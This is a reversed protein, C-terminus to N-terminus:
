KTNIKITGVKHLLIFSQSCRIKSEKNDIRRPISHVQLTIINQTNLSPNYTKFKIRLVIEKARYEYYSYRNMCLLTIDGLDISTTKLLVPNIMFFVSLSVTQQGNTKESTTSHYSLKYIVM